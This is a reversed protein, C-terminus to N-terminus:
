DRRGRPVKGQSGSFHGPRPQSDTANNLTSLKRLRRKCWKLFTNYSQRGEWNVLIHSDRQFEHRNQQHQLPTALPTRPHVHGGGGGQSAKKQTFLRCYENPSFTMVIDQGYFGNGPHAGAMTSFGVKKFNTKKYLIKM